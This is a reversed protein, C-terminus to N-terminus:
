TGREYNTEKFFQLIHPCAGVKHRDYIKVGRENEYICLVTHRKTLAVCQVKAAHALIPMLANLQPSYKQAGPYFKELRWCVVSSLFNASKFFTSDDYFDRIEKPLNVRMTDALSPTGDEYM